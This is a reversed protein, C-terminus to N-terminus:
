DDDDDNDSFTPQPRKRASSKATGVAKKGRTKKPTYAVPAFDENTFGEKIIRSIRTLLQEAEHRIEESKTTKALNTIMGQIDKAVLSHNLFKSWHRMNDRLKYFGSDSLTFLSLAHSLYMPSDPYGGLTADLAAFKSCIRETLSDMCSRSKDRVMSTLLSFITKYQPFPLREGTCALRLAFEPILNILVDGRRNLDTFFSAAISQVATVDDCLCRAPESLAGRTQIMDNSMLHSLVLIASERTAADADRTMKYLNPAYLEFLNPQAFAFDSCAALMNSRTLPNPSRAILSFFVPAGFEAISKNLTMFKGYAFIAAERIREPTSEARLLYVISPFIRSLLRKAVMIRENCIKNTLTHLFSDSAGQNSDPMYGFVATHKGSYYELETLFRAPEEPIVVGKRAQYVAHIKPISLQIYAHLRVAIEGCFAMYRETVLIWLRRWYNRRQLITARNAAGDREAEKKFMIYFEAIRKTRYMFKSVFEPIIENINRAVRMMVDISTQVVGFWDKEETDRLVEHFFLQEISKFLSDDNDVRFTPADYDEPLVKPFNLASIVRLAELALPTDLTLMKQLTRLRHRSEIVGNRSRTIAYLVRLADIRVNIDRNIGSAIGWIKNIVNKSFADSEALLYIVEEVSTRESESIGKMSNMVNAVTSDERVTEKENGGKHKSIFMEHSSEFLEKRMEPSNRWVLSCMARTASEAGTVNFNKCQALFKINERVEGLDGMLVSRLSSQVCDRLDYEVLLKNDHGYANYTLFASLFQVASKRVLVLKDNMRGGVIAIMGGSQLSPPIKEDEMLKTLLGIAKARIQGHTDTIHSFFRNYILLRQRRRNEYRSCTDNNLFNSKLVDYLVTLGASRLLSNEGQLLCFVSSLSLLIIDPTHEGIAQILLSLPKVNSFPVSTIACALKAIKELLPRLANKLPENEAGVVVLPEYFPYTNCGERLYELSMTKEIIKKAMDDQKKYDIALIKIIRFVKVLWKHSSNRACDPDDMLSFVTDLFTKLFDPDMVDPKWIYEICKYRDNIKLTLIDCLCNIMRIRQVNLWNHTDEDMDNVAARKGKRGVANNTAERQRKSVYLQLQVTIRQVLVVFMSLTKLLLPNKPTETENKIAEFVETAHDVVADKLPGSCSVLYDVIQFRIKWNDYTSILSTVSALTDFYKPIGKWDSVDAYLSFDRIDSEIKLPDLDNNIEALMQSIMVSDEDTLLEEDFLEGDVSGSVVKYNRVMGSGYHCSQGLRGPSKLAIGGSSTCAEAESTLSNISVAGVTDHSDEVLLKYKKFTKISKETKLDDNSCAQFGKSKAYKEAGEGVLIMPHIINLNEWYTDYALTKALESPNKMNTVCGVAGFRMNNSCMYSAECEVNGEFNLESGVGCNSAPDQELAQIPLKNHFM